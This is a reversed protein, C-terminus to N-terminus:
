KSAAVALAGIMQSSMAENLSLHGDVSPGGSSVLLTEIRCGVAIGYVMKAADPQYDHVGVRDLDRRAFEGATYFIVARWLNESVSM